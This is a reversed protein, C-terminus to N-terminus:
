DIEVGQRDTMRLETEDLRRAGGPMGARSLEPTM